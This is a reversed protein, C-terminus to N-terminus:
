NIDENGLENAKLFSPWIVMVHILDVRLSLAHDGIGFLIMEVFHLMLLSRKLTIHQFIYTQPCSSPVSMTLNDLYFTSLNM